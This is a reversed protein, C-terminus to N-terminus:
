WCFMDDWVSCALPKFEEMTLCGDGNTDYKTM